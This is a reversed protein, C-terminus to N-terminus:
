AYKGKRLALIQEANFHTQNENNFFKRYPKWGTFNGCREPTELCVACHEFPSWHGSEVLKDHLEFDKSIEFNGDFNLYSLRACRATCIKLLCSIVYERSAESFSADPLFKDAFPLHWDGPKLALPKGLQYLELMKYALEQIEPMAEPHARLNFFNGYETATCIVTIHTFPELLRNVYQKHMGVENLKKARAIAARRAKDWHYKARELEKGTLEESAQMGRQNKGWFIPLAPQNEAEEIIKTIPRARSSSSNRSLTRHTLVESHLFRPYRLLYSTLRNGCTNISDALISVEIM